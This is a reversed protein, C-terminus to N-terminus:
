RGAVCLSMAINEVANGWNAKTERGALGFSTMADVPSGGHRFIRACSQRAYGVANDWQAPNIHMPKMIQAEQYRAEDQKSEPKENAATHKQKKM